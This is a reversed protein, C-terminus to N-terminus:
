LRKNQIKKDSMPSVVPKKKETELDIVRKEMRAVRASKKRGYAKSPVSMNRKSRSLVGRLEVQVDHVNKVHEKRSITQARLKASGLSATRRHIRDMDQHSKELDDELMEGFGNYKRMLSLAHIHLLHFMPTYSLGLEEWLKATEKIAEDLNSFDNDTPTGHPMRLTAFVINLQRLLRKLLDCLRDIEEKDARKTDHDCTNLYDNIDKMFDDGRGFITRAHVGNFKGGHYAARRLKYKQVVIKHEIHNRVDFDAASKKRRLKKYDDRASKSAKKAFSLVKYRLNDIQAAVETKMDCLVEKNKM